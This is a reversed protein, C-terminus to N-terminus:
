ARANNSEKRIFDNSNEELSNVFDKATDNLTNKQTYDRDPIAEKGNMIYKVNYNQGTDDVRNITEIIDQVKYHIQFEKARNTVGADLENYYQTLIDDFTGSGQKTRHAINVADLDAMYDGNDMSADMGLGITSIDGLWGSAPISKGERM